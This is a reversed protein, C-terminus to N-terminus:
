SSGGDPGPDEGTASTTLRDHESGSARGVTSRPRLDQKVLTDELKPVAGSARVAEGARVELRAIRPLHPEIM